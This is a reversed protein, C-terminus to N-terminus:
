EKAILGIVEGIKNELFLSTSEDKAYPVIRFLKLLLAFYAEKIAAPKEKKLEDMLVDRFVILRIIANIDLCDIFRYSWLSQVDQLLSGIDMLWSDFFSDLFDIIYLQDGKVIINELTLDGHCASETFQSWDHGRLLRYAEEYIKGLGQTENALAEIKNIFVEGVDRKEESINIINEFLNIVIQRVKGIEISMIYKAMTIGQIYEMDFYFLGDETYGESLVAPTHVIQNHFNKQKEMQKILRHNYAINSSIKRVIAKNKDNEYLWVGCGSHGGLSTKREM